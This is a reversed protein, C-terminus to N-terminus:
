QPQMQNHAAAAVVEFILHIRESQHRTSIHLSFVLVMFSYHCNEFRIFFPSGSKRSVHGCNEKTYEITSLITADGNIYRTAAVMMAIFETLM